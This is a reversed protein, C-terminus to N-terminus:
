SVRLRLLKLALWSILRAGEWVLAVAGEMELIPPLIPLRVIAAPEIMSAAM